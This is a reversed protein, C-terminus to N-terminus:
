PTKTKTKTKAPPVTTGLPATSPPKEPDPAPTGNPNPATEPDGPQAPADAQEKAQKVANDFAQLAAAPDEAHKEVHQRVRKVQEPHGALEHLQGLMLAVNVRKPKAKLEDEFLALAGEVNGWRLLSGAVKIRGDSDVAVLRAMTEDAKKKQGKSSWLVYLLTHLGTAEPHAKLGAECVSVADDPREQALRVQALLEWGLVSQPVRKQLAESATAADDFRKAELYASALQKALEVEYPSRAVAKELASLAGPKDGRSARLNALHMLPVPDAPDAEAARELHREAIALEGAKQALEAALLHLSGRRPHYSLADKALAMAEEDKGKFVMRRVRLEILGPTAPDIAKMSEIIADLEEDIQPRASEDSSTLRDLTLLGLVSWAKAHKPDLAVARRLERFAKFTQEESLRSMALEFRGQADEAKAIASVMLDLGGAGHGRAVTVKGKLFRLAQDDPSAEVAAQIRTAAGALDGKDALRVGEMGSLMAAVAAPTTAVAGEVAIPIDKRAPLLLGDIEPLAVAVGVARWPLSVKGATPTTISMPTAKIGASKLLAMLLAGAEVEALSVKPTDATPDKAQVLDAAAEPRLIDRALPRDPDAAQIREHLGALLELTRQTPSPAKGVLAKALASVSSDPAPPVPEPAPETGPDPGPAEAPPADPVAKTTGPKPPPEPPGSGTGRMAFWLLGGAALCLSLIGVVTSTSFRRAPGSTDDLATLGTTRLCTPCRAKPGEPRFEAECHECFWSRDSM